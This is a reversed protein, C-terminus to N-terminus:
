FNRLLHRQSELDVLSYDLLATNVLTPLQDEDTPVTQRSRFRLEVLAASETFDFISQQFVSPLLGKYTNFKSRLIILADALTKARSEADVYAVFIIDRETGDDKTIRTPTYEPKPMLLLMRVTEVAKMIEIIADVQKLHYQGSYARRCVKMAFLGAICAGVCAGLVPPPFVQWFMIIKEIM